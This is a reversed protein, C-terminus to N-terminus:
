HNPRHEVGLGRAMGAWRDSAGRSLKSSHATAARGVRAEGRGNHSFVFRQRAADAPKEDDKVCM